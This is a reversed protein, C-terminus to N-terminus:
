STKINRTQAASLLYCVCLNMYACLRWLNRFDFYCPQSDNKSFFRPKTKGGVQLIRIESALNYMNVPTSGQIVM